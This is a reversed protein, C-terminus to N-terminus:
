REVFSLIKNERSIKAQGEGVLIKILWYKIINENEFYKLIKVKIILAKKIIM